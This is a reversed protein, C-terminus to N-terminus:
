IILDQFRRIANKRKKTLKKSYEKKFNGVFVNVGVVPELPVEGNKCNFDFAPGQFEPKGKAPYDTIRM